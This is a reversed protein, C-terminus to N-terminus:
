RIQRVLRVCPAAVAEEPTLSSVRPVNKAFAKRQAIRISVLLAFLVFPPRMIRFLAPLVLMALIRKSMTRFTVQFVLCVHRLVQFPTSVRSM